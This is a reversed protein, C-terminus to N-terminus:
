HQQAARKRSGSRAKESVELFQGISLRHSDLFSTLEEETMAFPHCSMDNATTSIQAKTRWTEGWIFLHGNTEGSIWSGHLTAM